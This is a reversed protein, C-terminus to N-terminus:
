HIPPMLHFENSREKIENFDHGPGTILPFKEEVSYAKSNVLRNELFEMNKQNILLRLFNDSSPSQISAGREWRNLSAVGFETVRAFGEQTYGHSLRLDKIETPNLVGLHKCVAEHKIKEGDIDLYETECEMCSIVPVTAEIETKNDGSGYSFTHDVWEHNIKKSGCQLCNHVLKESPDNNRTPEQYNMDKVGIRITFVEEL